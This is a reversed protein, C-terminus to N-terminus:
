DFQEANNLPGNKIMVLPMSTSMILLIVWAIKTPRLIPQEDDLFVLLRNLNYGCNKHTLIDLTM